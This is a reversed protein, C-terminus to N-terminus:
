TRFADHGYARLFIANVRLLHANLEAQPISQDQNFLLRERFNGIWLNRLDLAAQDHVIDPLSGHETMERLFDAIIHLSRGLGHTFFQEAVQPYDVAESMVLRNLAVADKSLVMTMYSKAFLLLVDQPPASWDLTEACKGIEVLRAPIVATYLAEKSEFHSYVTQRAVGAAKAVMEMSTARLGHQAFLRTAAAVIAEHKESDKFPGTGSRGAYKHRFDPRKQM